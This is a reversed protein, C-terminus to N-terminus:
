RVTGFCLLYAPGVQGLLINGTAFSVFINWGTASAGLGPLSKLIAEAGLAAGAVVYLFWVLRLFPPTSGLLAGSDLLGAAIYPVSCLCLVIGARADERAVKKGSFNETGAILGFILNGGGLLLSAFPSFIAAAGYTIAGTLFALRFIFTRKNQINM